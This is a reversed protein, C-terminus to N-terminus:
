LIIVLFGICKKSNCRHTEDCKSNIISAGGHGFRHSQGPVTNQGTTPGFILWDQPSGTTPRAHATDFKTKFIIIYEQPLFPVIEIANNKGLSNTAYHSHRM